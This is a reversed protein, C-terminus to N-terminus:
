NSNMKFTKDSRTKPVNNKKEHGLGYRKRFHNSSKKFVKRM